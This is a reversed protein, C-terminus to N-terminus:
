DAAGPDVRRFTILPLYFWSWSMAAAIAATAIAASSGDFVISSVLCVTAVIAVGMAVTGVITVWTAIQLHRTSHREVGSIPARVRQHVSPAILLVSALASSYFAVAFALREGDGLDSFRSQLPATLLFAFLVQVGPLSTRLGELLARFHDDITSGRDSSPPSTTSPSTSPSM